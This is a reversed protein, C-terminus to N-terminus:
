RGLLCDGEVFGLIGWISWTPFISMCKGKNMHGNEMKWTALDEMCERRVWAPTWRRQRAEGDTEWRRWRPAGPRRPLAPRHGNSHPYVGRFHFVFGSFKWVLPLKESVVSTKFPRGMHGTAFYWVGVYLWVGENKKRRWWQECRQDCFCVVEWRAKKWGSQVCVEVFAHHNMVAGWVPLHTFRCPVKRSSGHNFNSICIVVHHLKRKRCKNTCLLYM